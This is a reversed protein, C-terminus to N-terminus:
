ALASAQSSSVVGGDVHVELSVPRSNDIMSVELTKCLRALYPGLEISLAGPESAQLHRQVAAVSMVRQCADQLHLRPRELTGDPGQHPSHGRHNPPKNAVRHQMEQLLLEKHQLLEQLEREKARQETIDEIALLITADYNEEYFVSRANLLMTRRGIGSFEQEVEYAEM